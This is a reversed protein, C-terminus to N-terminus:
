SFYQLWEEESWRLSEILLQAKETPIDWFALFMQLSWQAALFDAQAGLEALASILEPERGIYRHFNKGSLPLFIPNDQLVVHGMLFLIKAVAEEVATGEAVELTKKVHDLAFAGKAIIPTAVLRYEPAISRLVRRAIHFDQHQEISM